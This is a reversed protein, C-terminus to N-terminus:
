EWFWRWFESNLCPIEDINEGRCEPGKDLSEVANHIEHVSLDIDKRITSKDM